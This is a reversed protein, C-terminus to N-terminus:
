PTILFKCTYTPGLTHCTYTLRDIRNKKSQAVKPTSSLVTAGNVLRDITDVLREPKEKRKFIVLGTHGCDGCMKDFYANVEPSVRTVLQVNV